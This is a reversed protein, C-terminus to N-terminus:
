VSLLVPSPLHVLECDQGAAARELVLFPAAQLAILPHHWTGPALTLGWHGDLRFAALTQLDPAAEGLAVLVIWSVPALPVFSQSGLRHRELVQWPGAVAQAQAHFVALAPASGQGLDLGAQLDQRRSTGANIARAAGGVTLPFLHGYPAFRAPDPAQLSLPHM